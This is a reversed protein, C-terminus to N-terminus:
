GEWPTCAKEQVPVLVHLMDHLVQAPTATAVVEAVLDPAFFDLLPQTESHYVEFRKRIVREDADDPRHEKIARHKMRRVMEEEDRAVLHVVKRVNVFPAMVQAQNVTRPIGDLLLLQQQPNYAHATVRGAMYECWMRITLEDPVLLGKTSYSLFTKGLESNKDLARFMDGSSFHYFGPISGLIKGQTGKGVGPAGFLLVANYRDSM